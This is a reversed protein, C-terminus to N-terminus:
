ERSSTQNSLPKQKNTLNACNQFLSPQTKWLIPSKYPILKIRPYKIKGNRSSLSIGKVNNAKLLIKRATQACLFSERSMVKNSFPKKDTAGIQAFKFYNQIRRGCYSM